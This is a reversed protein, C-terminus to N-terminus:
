HHLYLSEFERSTSLVVGQGGHGRIKITICGPAKCIAFKLRPKPINNGTFVENDYLIQEM